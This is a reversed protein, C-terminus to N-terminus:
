SCFPLNPLFRNLSLSLSVEDALVPDVVAFKAPSKFIRSLNVKKMAYKPRPKFCAILLGWDRQIQTLIQQMAPANQVFNVTLRVFHFPPSSEIRVEIADRDEKTLNMKTRKTRKVAPKPRAEDADTAATTAAKDNEVDKFLLATVAVRM